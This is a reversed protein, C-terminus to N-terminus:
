VSQLLVFLSKDDWVAKVRSTKRQRKLISVEASIQDVQGLGLGVIPIYDRKIWTETGQTLIEYGMGQGFGRCGERSTVM